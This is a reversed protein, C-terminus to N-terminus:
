GNERKSSLPLLEGGHLIGAVSAPVYVSLDL